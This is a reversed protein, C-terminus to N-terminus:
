FANDSLIFQGFRNGGQSVLRAWVDDSINQSITQGHGDGFFANVVSPHLSSPRPSAGESATGLNANIKAAPQTTTLNVGLYAMGVDKTSSATGFGTGTATTAAITNTTGQAPFVFGVSELVASGWGTAQLNESLVVTQAQGDTMRDLSGRFGGSLFQQFFVGTAQTLDEDDANYTAATAGHGNFIWDYAETTSALASRTVTHTPNLTATASLANTWGVANTYGLNAAFSMTGAAEANPDDPCTYVKINTLLLQATSNLGTTQNDSVQLRDFLGQQELFPLLQVSWPAGQYSPTTTTSINIRLASTNTPDTMSYPLRGNNATAFAHLATNVNRMQSMCQARRAAERANQIGPLILAALVAIISIVVLLEILTFGGRPSGGRQPKRAPHATRNRFRPAQM